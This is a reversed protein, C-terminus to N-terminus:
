RVAGLVAREVVGTSQCTAADRPIGAERLAATANALAQEPDVGIGLGRQASYSGVGFPSEPTSRLTRGCAALGCVVTLTIM